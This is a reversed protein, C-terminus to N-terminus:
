SHRWIAISNNGVVLAMLGVTLYLMRKGSRQVEWLELWRRRLLSYDLWHGLFPHGRDAIRVLRWVMLTGLVFKFACSVALGYEHSLYAMLPMVEQAGAIYTLALYTTLADLMMLSAGTLWLSRLLLCDNKM